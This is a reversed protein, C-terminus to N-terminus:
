ADPNLGSRVDPNHDAGLGLVNERLLFSMHHPIPKPIKYTTKIIVSPIKVKRLPCQTINMMPKKRGIKQSM